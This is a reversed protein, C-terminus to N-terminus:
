VPSSEIVLKLTTGRGRQSNIRLTGGVAEARERMGQLGFHDGQVNTKNEFGRGDDSLIFILQNDKQALSILLHSAQAHQCINRLGEEAIRYVCQEVSPELENLDEPLDFKLKLTYREASSLAMQKLALILGLDDLPGARLSQVARRTEVLGNRTVLLSQQLIDKAQGSDSDWLATVAELNVALGSLTHALTDHIERALRNRERSTTLHELTAAYHSLQRNREKQEFSLRNVVFGTFLFLATLVFAPVSIASIRTSNFNLYIQIFDFVAMAISYLISWKLSYQWSVLVLPILLMFALQTQTAVILLGNIIDKSVGIMQSLRGINASFVSLNILNELWPGLTAILLGIPLYFKGLRRELWPWSLYGFLLLCEGLSLAITWEFPYVNDRGFMMIVWHFISWLLNILVFSRFLPLIGGSFKFKHM